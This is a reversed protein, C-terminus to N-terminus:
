TKYGDDFYPNGRYVPWFYMLTRLCLCVPSTAFPSNWAEGFVVVYVLGVECVLASCASKFSTQWRKLPESIRSIMFSHSCCPMM